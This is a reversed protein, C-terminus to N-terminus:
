VQGALVHEGAADSPSHKGAKEAGDACQAQFARAQESFKGRVAFDIRGDGADRALRGSLRELVSGSVGV